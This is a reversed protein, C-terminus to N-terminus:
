PHRYGAAFHTSSSSPTLTGGSDQRVVVEMFDGVGMKYTMAIALATGISPATNAPRSDEAVRTVGNLVFSIYRRLGDRAGGVPWNVGADFHWEGAFGAPCTFRSTSFLSSADYDTNDFALITLAGDACAQSCDSRRGYPLAGFKVKWATGNWVSAVETTTNWWLQGLGPSTPAVTGVYWWLSNAPLPHVHDPRVFKDVTGAAATTGIAAIDGASGLLASNVIAFANVAGSALTHVHDDRAPNDGSGADATTSVASPTTTGSGFAYATAPTGYQHLNPSGHRASTLYQTHDDDSTVYIHREADMVVAAPLVHTVIAGSGHTTPVTGDYGRTLVSVTAPNAGAIGSCLIKEESPTNADICVPFQRAFVWGSVTGTVQFSLAAPDTIATFLQLASAGGTADQRGAAVM